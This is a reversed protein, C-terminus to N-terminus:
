QDPIEILSSSHGVTAADDTVVGRRRSSKEILEAEFRETCVFDGLLRGAECGNL